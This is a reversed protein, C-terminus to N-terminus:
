LKRWVGWEGTTGPEEGKTYWGAKWSDGNHTVVDNEYYVKTASWGGVEPKEDEALVQKWVEAKSPEEGQTWWGAKWTKGMHTVVDGANYVATKSWSGEPVETEPEEPDVPPVPPLPELAKITSVAFAYDKESVWVQNAHVNSANFEYQAAAQNWVGVFLKESDLANLETALTEAWTAQNAATIVLRHDFVEAGTVPAMLRFRVIDGVAPTQYGAPVFYGPIVNMDGGVVPPPTVEGGNGSQKITIDSCNYFGEGVPDIRQWRTYLVADGSRDTPLKVKFNYTKYPTGANPMVNGVTHVLELDDWNLPQTFDHGPKTLYFEWFSPNHPATATWVFDFEGNADLVIETKQWDKHPVDLGTKGPMGAACLQGDKINAKVTNIDNYNPNLSAVENRQIFAEVGSKDYSAKCAANPITNTWYGGDNNCTNQRASPFEAWGHANAAGIAAVNAIAFAVSLSLKTFKSSM